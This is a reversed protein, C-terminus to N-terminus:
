GRVFHPIDFPIELILEVFGSYEGNEFWPTQYILKKVGNKEITYMNTLCQLMMEKIKICAAPPHCDLLNTGILSEGGDDAFTLMSRDNMALIVGEKDCITVAGPFEKIWSNDLM